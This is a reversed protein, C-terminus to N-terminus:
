FYGVCVCVFNPLTVLATSCRDLLHSGGLEFGLAAFLLVSNCGPNELGSKWWKKSICYGSRLAQLGAPQPLTRSHGNHSTETPRVVHLLMAPRSATPTNGVGM